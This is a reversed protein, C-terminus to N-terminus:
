GFDLDDLTLGAAGVVVIKEGGYTFGPMPAM